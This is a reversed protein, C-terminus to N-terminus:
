CGHCFMGYCFFVNSVAPCAPDSWGNRLRREIGARLLVVGSAIGNRKKAWSTRNKGLRSIMAPMASALSGSEEESLLQIQMLGCSVLERDAAAAAAAAPFTSSAIFMNV